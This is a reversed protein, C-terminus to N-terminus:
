TGTSVQSSCLLTSQTRTSAKLDNYVPSFRADGMVHWALLGGGKSTRGSALRHTSRWRRGQTPLLVLVGHPLDRGASTQRDRSPALAMLKKDM